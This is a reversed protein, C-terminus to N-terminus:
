GILVLFYMQKRVKQPGSVRMLLKLSLLSGELIRVADIWVLEADIQSLEVDILRLFCTMRPRGTTAM